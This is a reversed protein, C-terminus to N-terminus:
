HLEFKSSKPVPLRSFVKWFCCYTYRGVPSGIETRSPVTICFYIKIYYM